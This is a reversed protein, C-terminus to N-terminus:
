YQAVYIQFVFCQVKNKKVQRLQKASITEYPLEGSLRFNLQKIQSKMRETELEEESQTQIWLKSARNDVTSPRHAGPGPRPSLVRRHSAFGAMKGQCTHNTPSLVSRASAGFTTGALSPRNPSLCPEGVTQYDQSSPVNQRAWVSEQLRGSFFLYLWFYFLVSYSKIVTTLVVIVFPYKSEHDRFRLDRSFSM